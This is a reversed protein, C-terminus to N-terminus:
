APRPSPGGPDRAKVYVPADAARVARDFDDGALVSLEVGAYLDGPLLPLLVPALERVVADAAEAGVGTVDVAVVLVERAEVIWVAAIVPQGAFARRLHFLARPDLPGALGQLRSPDGPEATSSGIRRPAPGAADVLAELGLREAVALIRDGSAAVWRASSRWHRLEEVGTFLLVREMGDDEHVTVPRVSDLAGERPLPVEGDAGRIPLLLEQAELDTAENVMQLPTNVWGSAPFSDPQLCERSAAISFM